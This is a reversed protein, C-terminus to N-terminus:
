SPVSNIHINGQRLISVENSISVPWFIVGIMVTPSALESPPYHSVIRFICLSPVAEGRLPYYVRIIIPSLPPHPPTLNRFFSPRFPYLRKTRAGKPSSKQFPISTIDRGETRPILTDDLRIIIINNFNLQASLGSSQSFKTIRAM